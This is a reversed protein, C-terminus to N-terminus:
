KKIELEEGTLAVYLNQLQHVYKIHPMREVWLEVFGKTKNCEVHIAKNEFRDQYSNSVFGFKLLWEEKLPIPEIQHILSQIGNGELHIWAEGSGACDILDICTEIDSNKLRVYNGIRLERAEM